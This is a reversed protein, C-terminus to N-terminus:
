TVRIQYDTNRDEAKLNIIACTALLEVFVRRM